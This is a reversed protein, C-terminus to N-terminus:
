GSGKETIKAHLSGAGARCDLLLNGLFKSNRTAVRQFFSFGGPLTTWTLTLSAKFCHFDVVLFRLVRLIILFFRRARRKKTTSKRLLDSLISRTTSPQLFLTERDPRM